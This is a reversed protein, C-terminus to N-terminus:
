CVLPSVLALPSALVYLRFSFWSPADHYFGLISHELLSTAVLSQSFGHFAVFNPLLQTSTVPLEAHSAHPLNM